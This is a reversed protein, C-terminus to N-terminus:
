IAARPSNPRKANAWVAQLVEELAEDPSDRVAEFCCKVPNQPGALDCRARFKEGARQPLRELLVYSAGLQKLRSALHEIRQESSGSPLELLDTEAATTSARSEVTAPVQLALSEKPVSMPASVNGQGLAPGIEDVEGPELRGPELQVEPNSGEDRRFRLPQPLDPQDLSVDTLSIDSSALALSLSSSTSLSSSATDMRFLKGVAQDFEPVTITAWSLAAGVLVTVCKGGFSIPSNM